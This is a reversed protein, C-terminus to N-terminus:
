RRRSHRWREEVRRSLLNWRAHVRGTALIPVDTMRRKWDWNKGSLDWSKGKSTTGAGTV